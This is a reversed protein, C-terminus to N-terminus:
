RINVSFGIKIAHNNFDLKQISKNSLNFHKSYGYQLNLKFNDNIFYSYNLGIQPNIWLGKFEEQKTLDFNDGDINQNGNVLTEAGLGINLALSNINNNIFPYHVKGNIGLYHTKWIQNSFNYYGIANYENLGFGFSFYLPLNLEPKAIYGIEFSNGIDGKLNVIENTEDSFGYASFNKGTNFYIEQAKVANILLFIFFILAIRKM